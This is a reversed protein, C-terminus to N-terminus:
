LNFFYFDYIHTAIGSIALTIVSDGIVMCAGSLVVIPLATRLKKRKQLFRKLPLSSSDHRSPGYRYAFLEEDAAQQNPLLGLKALRCLLSYLAFTGGEGNDDATLVIFVYKLLPILTLWFILSFAGFIADENQSPNRPTSIGSEPEM